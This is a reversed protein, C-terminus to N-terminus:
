GDGVAAVTAVLEPGPVTRWPAALAVCFGGARVTHAAYQPFHTFRMRVAPAAADVEHVELVELAVTLGTRLAKGLAEKAAWLRAAAVEEPDGLVGLLARERATLHADVVRHVREDAREVDVGLPTEEGAAVAVAVPDCHALSVQVARVGPLHVVPQGLVGAGVRIRRLDPEGTLGSLALKAVYRGLLFERRRRPRMAALRGAEEPHLHGALLDVDAGDGARWAAVCGAARGDPRVLALPAVVPGTRAPTTTM